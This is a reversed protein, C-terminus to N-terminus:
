IRKFLGADRLRIPWQQYRSVASITSPLEHNRKDCLGNWEDCGMSWLHGSADLGFVTGMRCGTGLGLLSYLHMKRDNGALAKRFEFHVMQVLFFSFLVFRIPLSFHSVTNCSICFLFCALLCCVLSNSQPATRYSVWRHWPLFEAPGHTFQGVSVHVDVFEDYVGSNKVQVIADLFDDQEQCTLDRWARRFSTHCDRASCSLLLNNGVWCYLVAITWWVFDSRRGCKRSRHLHLVM